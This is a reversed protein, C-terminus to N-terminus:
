HTNNNDEYAEIQQYTLSLMDTNQAFAQYWNITKKLAVPLPWQPTWGLQQKAQSSDLRLLQAEHPQHTKEQQWQVSDGWLLAMKDLVWKVPQADSENPGFNYAQTYKQSSASNNEDPYLKKALLLYGCLPELVHQWPRQAEPNRILVPQNKGWARIIDPILRDESWDGGGIVNGARVTALAIHHNFFSQRYAQSVLEACAKSSSYPDYGGLRDNERYAWGWEKNEYCKDTTVNVIVKVSSTHRAAELLHVTGMVNTMYTEVPANYSYRVLAQAALHFVIEPEYQQFCALLSTYDCIDAIINNEIHTDLKVTQFLNPQTIPSLAYGTVRAGMKTLWLALWGGKFGTHGTILVKKGQWFSATIIKDM